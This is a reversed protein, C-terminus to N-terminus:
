TFGHIRFDELPMWSVLVVSCESLIQLFNVFGELVGNWRKSFLFLTLTLKGIFFVVILAPPPWNRKWMFSMQESVIYYRINLTKGRIKNKTRIHDENKLSKTKGFFRSQALVAQIAYSSCIWMYLEKKIISM